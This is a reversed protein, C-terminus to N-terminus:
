MSRIMRVIAGAALAIAFPALIIVFGFAVSYGISHPTIGISAFHEVGLETVAIQYDAPCPEQQSTCIVYYSM